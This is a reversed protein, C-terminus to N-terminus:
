HVNSTMPGFVKAYNVLLTRGVESITGKRHSYITATNALLLRYEAESSKDSFFVSSFLVCWRVVAPCLVSTLASQKLLSPEAM